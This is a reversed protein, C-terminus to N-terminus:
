AKIRHVAFNHFGFSILKLDHKRGPSVNRGARSVVESTQEKAGQM